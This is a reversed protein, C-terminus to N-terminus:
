LNLHHAAMMQTASDAAASIVAYRGSRHFINLAGASASRKLLAARNHLVGAALALADDRQRIYDSDHAFAIVQEPTFRCGERPLILWGRQGASCVYGALQLGVTVAVAATITDTTTAPDNGLMEPVDHADTFSWNGLRGYTGWSAAWLPVHQQVQLLLCRRNHLALKCVQAANLVACGGAPLPARWAHLVLRADEGRASMRGVTWSTVPEPRAAPTGRGVDTLQVRQGSPKLPFGLTVLMAVTSPDNQPELFQQEPRLFQNVSNRAPAGECAPLSSTCGTM